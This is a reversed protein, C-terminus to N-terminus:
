RLSRTVVRLDRVLQLERRLLGATQVAAAVKPVRPSVPTYDSLVVNNGNYNVLFSGSSDTTTLRSGSAVNAFVGALTATSSLVTFSNSNNVSNQFGNVFSVLLQGGLSVNGNVGLFGYQSGQTLGGLQFTLQSASLLSVNGTVQLGSGGLAPRLNANNTIASNITGRADILGAQFNLANNSQVSGGSLRFTGGTQTYTGTATVTDSGVDVTGSSSVNANFRLTGGTTAAITGTNNFDGGGNGNLVLIGGNSARMTGANSLGTGSSPDVDLVLGNVNADIVGSSQNVIGLENTGLSGSNSTEGSIIQNAITLTGSGRIRDANQLFFHGGGTLTVGGLFADTFNGASGITINGTNTITGFFTTTTGNNTVFNAGLSLNALSATNLVRIVGTGQTQWLGGALAAGNTLQVQSLDFAIVTGGSLQTFSGGGNGNLLLIGGNTARMAGENILGNSASPDINLAKGAVNADIVGTSLNEIGIENTGLSGSNSTEGRITSANALIGSGRVRDANTLILSGFGSLNVNGNLSLDTFNGTSNVTFAADNQISGALTTTTGNNTIVTGQIRVDALTATNLVRLVSSDLLFMGGGHVSAGNTLQVEGTDFGNIQGNSNDFDGGGNGNLLLIGGHLAAMVGNNTLGAPSPDVNLALGNVNAYIAYANTIALENAGLSGSNSTEGSITHSAANTLRFAGGGSSGLRAANQLVLQGTGNFTVDSALRLDTFNGQSNIVFTGNNTITGLVTTTTTNDVSFNGANTLNQLTSSNM